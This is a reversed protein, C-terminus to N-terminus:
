YRDRLSDTLWYYEKCITPKKKDSLEKVEGDSQKRGTLCYRWQIYLNSATHYGTGDAEKPM